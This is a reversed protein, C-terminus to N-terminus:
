CADGVPEYLHCGQMTASISFRAKTNDDLCKDKGTDMNIPATGLM